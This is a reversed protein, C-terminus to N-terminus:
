FIFFFPFVCFMFACFRSDLGCSLTFSHSSEFFAFCSRTFRSELGCKLTFSHSSKSVSSTKPFTALFYFALFSICNFLLIFAPYFTPDKFSVIVCLFKHMCTHLKSLSQQVYQKTHFHLAYVILQNLLFFPFFIM